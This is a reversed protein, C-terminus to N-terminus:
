NLVWQIAICGPGGQTIFAPSLELFDINLNPYLALFNEKIKKAQQEVGAHSISVRYSEPNELAQFQKIVASVAGNFTRAITFKELRRGDETQTMVPQIKLLGGIKAALPTLRGGRKLFDFDQPLLFSKASAIKQNLMALLADLSCGENVMKLACEFMYRHPGCLTKTNVVHIHEENELGNKAGLASMYTGSLGDTMCLNVIEDDSYKEYAEIVMGIAPQSSTPVNGSKVEELFQQSSIDVFEQYTKNNVTVLLPLIEVNMEKGQSPTYLTSTDTIIKIM